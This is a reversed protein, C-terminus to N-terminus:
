TQIGWVWFAVNQCRSYVYLLKELCLLHNVKSAKGHNISNVRLLLLIHCIDTLACWANPVLLVAVVWLSSKQNGNWCCSKSVRIEHHLISLCVAWRSSFSGCSSSSNSNSGSISSISIFILSRISVFRVLLWFCSM